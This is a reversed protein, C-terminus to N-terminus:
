TGRRFRHGGIGGADPARRYIAFLTGATATREIRRSELADLDFEIGAGPRDGLVVVGDVIQPQSALVVDNGIKTLEMMTHNPLAAGLHGAFCGPNHMISVPLDFAYALEAVQLAGSIGSTLPGLQIVDASGSAILNVYDFVDDFNEGTAVPARIADSVRRLGRHDRRPVPEEVWTLDFARELDAIRQIAQKPTWFENADIILQPERGDRGLADAVLTLRRLDEDPDRGVKLKGARIGMEAMGSYFAVLQDDSLPTDLGSAYLPVTDREGGLEKWLPVDNAKARLDWLAFDLLALALRVPGANAFKFAAAFMDEWLARVSRPDRGALLPELRAIPEAAQVPGLSNGVVGEDTEIFVAVDAGLATGGPLNVDGIPRALEYGYPMTRISTIKM